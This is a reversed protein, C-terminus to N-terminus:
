KESLLMLDDVIRIFIEHPKLSPQRTFNRFLCFNKKMQFFSMKNTTRGTYVPLSNFALVHSSCVTSFFKEPYFLVFIADGDAVNEPCAVEQESRLISKKARRLSSYLEKFM